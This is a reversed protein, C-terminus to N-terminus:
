DNIRRKYLYVCETSVAWYEGDVYIKTVNNELQGLYVGICPKVLLKCKRPSSLNIPDYLFVGSPIHALDGEVLEIEMQNMM